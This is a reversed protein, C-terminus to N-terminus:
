TLKVRFITKETMMIVTYKKPYCICVTDNTQAQFGISVGCVVRKFLPTMDYGTITKM